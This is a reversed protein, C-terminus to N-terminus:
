VTDSFKMQSFGPAGLKSLASPRDLQPEADPDDRLVAVGTVAAARLRISGAALDMTFRLRMSEFLSTSGSEMLTETSAPAIRFFTYSAAALAPRNNGSLRPASPFQRVPPLMPVLGAPNDTTRDPIVDSRRRPLKNTLGALM